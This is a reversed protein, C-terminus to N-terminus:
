KLLKNVYSPNNQQWTPRNKWGNIREANGEIWQKAKEPITTVYEINPIKEGALIADEFKDYEENSIQVAVAFCMCLVHWGDFVFDKPYIGSLINCEDYTPHNNSVQVKIAKVFPLQKWRESDSRRNATNIENAALRRANGFSSRMVGQGPHYNKAAQSLRLKGDDGRVRRFLKDPNNLYQRLDRAMDNASRGESVGIGLATEMETPYGDLSNWVRDSLNLGKNKRKIFENLADLNPDYLISKGAKTPKKGALRKDVLINNKLNSLDWSETIGNVTAAYVQAHLKKVQANIRNLLAPYDKLRFIEGNWSIQSYGVSIQHIADEYFKRLEREKKKLNALHQKEYQDPPM